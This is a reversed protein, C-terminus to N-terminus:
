SPAAEADEGLLLHHGTAVVEHAAPRRDDGQGGVLQRPGAATRAAHRHRDLAVRELVMSKSSIGHGLRGIQAMQDGDVVQGRGLDGAEETEGGVDLGMGLCVAGGESVLAQPHDELLGRGAGPHAELDAHHLHAAVGEEEGAAVDLEPAALRDGVSGPDERAVDVADHGAGERVLRHEVERLVTRDRHDIAQGVIEVRALRQGVVEGQGLDEAAIEGAPLEGVHAVAVVHGV